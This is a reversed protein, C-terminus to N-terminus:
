MNTGQILGGTITAMMGFASLIISLVIGILSIIGSVMFYLKIKNLANIFDAASSNAHAKKAASSAMILVIGMWIPFWAFLIGVLTLVLLAGSIISLIGLILMWIAAKQLPLSLSKIDSGVNQEEM